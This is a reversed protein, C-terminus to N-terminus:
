GRAAKRRGARKQLAFRWSHPTCPVTCCTASRQAESASQAAIMKLGPPRPSADIVEDRPSSRRGLPAFAVSITTLGDVKTYMFSTDLLLLLLLPLLLLLLKDAPAIAPMAAPQATSATAIAAPPQTASRRRRCRRICCPSSDSAAGLAASSAPPGRETSPRGGGAGDNAGDLGCAGNLM